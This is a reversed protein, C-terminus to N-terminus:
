RCREGTGAPAVAEVAVLPLLGDGARLASDSGVKGTRGGEAGVASWVNWVGDCTDDIKDSGGGSRRWSARV